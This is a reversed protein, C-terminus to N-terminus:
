WGARSERWPKAAKFDELMLSCEEALDKGGASRALDQAKEVTIAAEHFRGAEAYAAALTKLKEPERRGTLECAREAMRVAETGHRFEPNADTALIWSLGNLANPFDPQLLLAHAYQSMAERTKQQHALAVAFQFHANPDATAAGVTKAFLEAAERWQEQQNLALALNYETEPNGPNLRAAERLQRSGEALRGKQVLLIGLNNHAQALGPDLKLAAFYHAIAEDLRGQTHLLRAFNNHAIASEPNLKLAVLYHTAADDFKKQRALAGGLFIHTQEQRPNLRLSQDYEAIAEDLKGQQDLAHGLFFHGEAYAPRYRLAIRYQAMADDFRGEKALLSGLLTVALYNNRTVQATHEFLTRTNKWYSLQVSTAILLALGVVMTMVRLTVLKKGALDVVGWVLAVFLGILPLYAYRDAWAQEGVQVLGIVPVLTGIFWLWGVALYPRRTAWRFVLVTILTLLSGAFVVEATSIITEYPYFVALGRPVFMAGLYHMYALLAHALRQLIPLEATSLIAPEQASITLSCAIASLAFFPTKEMVLGLWRAPRFQALPNEVENNGFGPAAIRGLPWFDLLLLVFPLTVAIPKSMLGFAFLVLALWYYGSKLPRIGVSEPKPSKAKSRQVYRAYAGLTLMWFCASLVDKREAVWAVSEVHLPHWAFFAAVAASRWVAGTMRHLVLFLLLTSAVHLLVNTAHHGAPKLGYLQCDLMHSLWTLPHWNGVHYGFAWAVGPRTLGAQVHPNETVYLQDDYALFDHRLSPLYLALTILGLVLCLWGGLRSNRAREKM